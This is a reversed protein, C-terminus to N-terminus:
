KRMKKDYILNIECSFDSQDFGSFSSFECYSRIYDNKTLINSLKNKVCAVSPGYM